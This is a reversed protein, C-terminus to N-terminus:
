LLKDMCGYWYTEEDEDTSPAHELLYNLVKKTDWVKVDFGHRILARIHQFGDSLKPHQHVWCIIFM